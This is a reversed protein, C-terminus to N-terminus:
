SDDSVCTGGRCGCSAAEWVQFMRQMTHASEHINYMGRAKLWEGFEVQRSIVERDEYKKDKKSM